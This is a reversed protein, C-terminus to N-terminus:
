QQSKKVFPLLSITEIDKHTCTVSIANLWRSENEVKLGISKIVSIYDPSVKLDYWTNDTITAHKQRRQITEEPLNILESGVKDKFYVWVKYHNGRRGPEFLEYDIKQSLGCSILIIFLLSRM